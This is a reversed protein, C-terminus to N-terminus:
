ILNKQFDKCFHSTIMTLSIPIEFVNQIYCVIYLFQETFSVSVSCLVM